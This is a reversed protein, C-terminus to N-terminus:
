PKGANLKAVEAQGQVTRPVLAARLARREARRALCYKCECKAEDSTPGLSQAAIWNECAVGDPPPEDFPDSADAVMDEVQEEFTRQAAYFKGALKRLERRLADLERENTTIRARDERIRFLATEVEDRATLARDAQKSVLLLLYFVCVLILGSCVTLAIHM